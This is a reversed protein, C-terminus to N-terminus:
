HSRATYANKQELVSVDKCSLEITIAETVFCALTGPNVYADESFTIAVACAYFAISQEHVRM